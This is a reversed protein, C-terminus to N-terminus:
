YLRAAAPTVPTAGNAQFEVENVDGFVFRLSDSELRAFGTIKVTGLTNVAV